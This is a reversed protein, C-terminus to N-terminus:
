FWVHTRLRVMSDDDKKDYSSDDYSLEFKISPTYWYAVGFTYVEANEYGDDVDIYRQFTAWKDDWKQDARVFLVETDKQFNNENPKYAWLVKNGWDAYPDDTDIHFGEEIDAYEIWLSTFGLAEQDVELIVQYASPDDTEAGSAVKVKKDLDEMMYRARLQINPTFNVYAQAWYVAWDNGDGLYGEDYDNWIGVLGMGFQENFAWKLRTGYSYGEDEEQEAGKVEGDVIDLDLSKGDRHAVFADFQGTGFPKSAHFGVLRQDTFWADNDTWFGDEGEWDYPWKGLKVTFDWPMKATVYYQEWDLDKDANDFDGGAPGIRATFTLKDDIKKQMYIRYRNLDFDTDSTLGYASKKGGSVGDNDGWKADFRLEGWIRWGGIDEELTSVRGDLDEVKVGLADLEDKFEVVLRKLLELDEKSAKNMDVYALARAVISAMEYRTAKWEGKFAGDPYGTVIGRAALQSVADYAWHNMPVDMFPNAAFAPAAFAVLAAVAVLAVFKKM